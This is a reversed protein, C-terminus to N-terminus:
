HSFLSELRRGVARFRHDTWDIRGCLSAGGGGTASVAMTWKGGKEHGINRVTGVGGGLKQIESIESRFGANRLDDAWVYGL